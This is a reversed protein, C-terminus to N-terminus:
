GQLTKAKSLIFGSFAGGIVIGPSLDHIEHGDEPRKSPKRDDNQQGIQLRRPIAWITPRRQRPKLTGRGLGSCLPQAAAVKARLATAFAVSFSITQGRIRIVSRGWEKSGHQHARGQQSSEQQRDDDEEPSGSTASNGTWATERHNRPRDQALTFPEQDM